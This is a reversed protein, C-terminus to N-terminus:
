TGRYNPTQMSMDTDCLLVIASLSTSYLAAKSEILAQPSKINDVRHCTM